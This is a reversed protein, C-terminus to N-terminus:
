NIILVKRISTMLDDISYPKVLFAQVDKLSNKYREDEKTFGSVAIIKVDPNIKRLAKITKDGEMIPMMMDLLVLNIADKNQEYTSVAEKGDKAVAIRCGKRELVLVTTLLVSPEDDVVLILAGLCENSKLPKAM